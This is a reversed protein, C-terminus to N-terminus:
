GGSVLQMISLVDGNNLKTSKAKSGIAQNNLVVFFSGELGKLQKYTKRDIKATKYLTSLADKYNSGRPLNITESIALFDDVVMGVVKIEINIM